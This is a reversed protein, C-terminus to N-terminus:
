HVGEKCEYPNLTNVDSNQVNKIVFNICEM